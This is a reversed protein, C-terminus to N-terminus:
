KDNDLLVLVEINNVEFFVILCEKLEKLCNKLERLNLM